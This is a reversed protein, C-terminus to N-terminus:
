GVKAAEPEPAAEADAEGRGAAVLGSVARTSGLLWAGAAVAALFAVLVVGGLPTGSWSEGGLVPALLVPVCIQVVFIIPVVQTAPRRQLATMESLLGLAAVIGTLPAWLAIDLWTGSSLYDAILKSSLGTFAFACGAALPVLLTSAAGRRRLAYPALAVAAIAGLAPGVRAPGGHTSVHAPAAWAIGAVGVVIALVALVERGGVREGLLRDGLVLLLLLGVALAPQVVTLPALVLAAVHFPWGLGALITGALWRRSRVLGALLAPRLGQAHATVRAELAQLAVGLDFLISAFVACALGGILESLSRAMM